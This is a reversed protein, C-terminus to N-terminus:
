QGGLYRLRIAMEMKDVALVLLMKEGTANITGGSITITGTNWVSGGGIGAGYQGGNVDLSGTGKIELEAEGEVAVGPSYQGSKLRNTGSLILTNGRGSFSLAYNGVKSVDSTVSDLTLTVGSDCSIHVNQSGNLTATANADIAIWDHETITLTQTSDDAKTLLGTEINLTEGDSVTYTAALAWQPTLGVIMFLGIVILLCQPIRKKIAKEM